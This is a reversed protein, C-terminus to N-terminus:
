ARRADDVLVPPHGAARRAHDALLLERLRDGRGDRGRDHRDAAARRREGGGLDACIALRHVQLDTLASFYAVVVVGGIGSAFNEFAMAAALGLNTHGAVALLAFSANSVGMLILSILVSRKM